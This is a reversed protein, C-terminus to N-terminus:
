PCQTRNAYAEASIEKWTVNGTANSGLPALRVEISFHGAKSPVEITQFGSASASLAFPLADATNFQFCGTSGTNQKQGYIAVTAGSIPQGKLDTVYGVARTAPHCPVFSCCGSLLM